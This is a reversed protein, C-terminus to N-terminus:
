WDSLALASDLASAMADEFRAFLADLRRVPDSARAFSPIVGDHLSPVVGGHPRLQLRAEVADAEIVESRDRGVFDAEIVSGGNRGLALAAALGPTAGARQIVLDNFDSGATYSLNFDQGSRTFATPNNAFGSWRGSIAPGGATERELIRFETGGAIAGNVNISLSPLPATTAITVSRNPGLLLLKDGGAPTLHVQFQSGANFRVNGNVRLTGPTLGVGPSVITAGTATLSGGITGTGTLSSFSNLVVSSRTTGDVQLVGGSVLGGGSGVETIGNYLHDTGAPFVLTGGGVKVLDMTNTADDIVGQMVLTNFSDVDIRVESILRGGGLFVSGTLTTTGGGRVRLATRPALGLAGNLVLREAVALPAGVTQLELTARNANVVTSGTTDGLGSSKQVNLIGEVLQNTGTYTNTGTGQISMRGPGDKEIGAAGVMRATVILDDAAAGDAVDFVQRGSTLSQPVLNLGGATQDSDIRAPSGSALTTIPGNVTLTGTGIEVTGGFRGGTMRLQGITETQNNLDLVGSTGVAVFENDVIQDPRLLRVPDTGVSDGIILGDGSIANGAAKNLAVAGNVRTVNAYTNGAPGTLELGTGNIILDRNASGGSIVGGLQLNGGLGTFFSNRDGKLRIDTNIVTAAANNTVGAATVGPSTLVFRNSPSAASNAALTYGTALFNLRGFEFDQPFGNRMARADAPADNAFILDEGLSPRRFDGLVNGSQVERWNAEDFWNRLGAADPNGLGVWRVTLVERRELAEIQPRFAARRRVAGQGRRSSPVKLWSRLWTTAM